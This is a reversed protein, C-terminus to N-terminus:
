KTWRTAMDSISRRSTPWLLLTAALALGGLVGVTLTTFHTVASRSLLPPEIIELALPTSSADKVPDPFVASAIVASSVFSFQVVPSHFATLTVVVPEDDGHGCLVSLVRSNPATALNPMSPPATVIGVTHGVGNLVPLGQCYAPMPQALSVTPGGSVHPNAPTSPTLMLGNCDPLPVVTLSRGTALPAVDDSLDHGATHLPLEASGEWRMVVAVDRSLQPNEVAALVEYSGTVRLVLLNQEPQRQAVAVTYIVSPSQDSRLFLVDRDCGASTVLATSGDKRVATAFGVPQLGCRVVDGIAPLTPVDDGNSWVFLSHVGNTTGTNLLLLSPVRPFRATFASALPDTPAASRLVRLGKAESAVVAADVAADLWAWDRRSAGLGAVSEVVRGYLLTSFSSSHASLLQGSCCVVTPVSLRDALVHALWESNSGSLVVLKAKYSALTEAVALIDAPLAGGSRAPMGINFANLDYLTQRTVVCSFTTVEGTTLVIHPINVVVPADDAPAKMLDAKLKIVADLLAQETSVPSAAAGTPTPLRSSLESGSSSRTTRAPGRKNRLLNYEFASFKMPVQRSAEFRARLYALLPADDSDGCAVHLIDADSGSLTALEAASHAHYAIYTVLAAPQKV